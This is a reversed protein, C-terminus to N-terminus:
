LPAWRSIFPNTRFGFRVGTSDIDDHLSYPKIRVAEGSEIKAQNEFAIRDHNLYPTSSNCMSGKGPLWSTLSTVSSTRGSRQRTLATCTHITSGGASSLQPHCNSNTPRALLAVTNRESNWARAGYVQSQAGWLQTHFAREIGHLSHEGLVFRTRRWSGRRQPSSNHHLRRSARVRLPHGRSDGLCSLPLPSPISLWIHAKQGLLWLLLSHCGRPLLRFPHFCIAIGYNRGYNRHDCM